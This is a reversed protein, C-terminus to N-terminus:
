IAETLPLQVQPTQQKSIPTSPSFSLIPEDQQLVLTTLYGERPRRLCRGSLKHLALFTLPMALGTLMEIVTTEYFSSPDVFVPSFWTFMKAYFLHSDHVENVSM